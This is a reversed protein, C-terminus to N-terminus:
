QYVSSHTGLTMLLRFLALWLLTAALHIFALFRCALKEFRMAIRRHDKIKMFFCEALHREKYYDTYRRAM